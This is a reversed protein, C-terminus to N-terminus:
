WAKLNEEPVLDVKNIVFILKKGEEKVLEEVQQCRTGEPDRGDLVQVVVDAAEIAKRVERWHGKKSITGTRQAQVGEPDILEEAEDIEEKTLGEYKEEQKVISSGNGAEGVAFDYVKKGAEDITVDLKKEKLKQKAEIEALRAAEMTNIFDEKGPFSNPIVGRKNSGKLPLVMGQKRLKRASKKLKRHHNAVKKEVSYKERLGLRKSTKKRIKPM